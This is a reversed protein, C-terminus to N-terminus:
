NVIIKKRFNEMQVIYFGKPLKITYSKTDLTSKFILAGTLNYISVNTPGEMNSLTIGDTSQSFIINKYPMDNDVVSGDYKNLQDILEDFKMESMWIRTTRVPSGLEAVPNWLYFIGQHVMASAKYLYSRRTINSSLLPTNWFKFNIADDSVGLLIENASEPTAVCYYKSHHSFLDIHWLDFGEKFRPLVDLTKTFSHTHLDNDQIDWISLGWPNRQPTFQHHVGYLKIKGHINMVIPSMESDETEKKEGAFFKKEGFTKGDTTYRGFTARAYGLNAGAQTNNERWFVWLGKGDYYIAPDSNYGRGPPTEEIVGVATWSLPPLDGERSDGFYLIPNEIYFDGNRYPSGVMWWKHGAFGEPIYRVCPHILDDYYKEPQPTPASLKVGLTMVNVLPDGSRDNSFVQEGTTLTLTFFLGIVKISPRLRLTQFVILQCAIPMPSKMLM